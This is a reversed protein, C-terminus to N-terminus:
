RECSDLIDEKSKFYYYILAKTVGASSAIQNVSTADYGNLSFLKTSAAIIRDRTKHDREQNMNAPEKVSRDNLKIIDLLVM